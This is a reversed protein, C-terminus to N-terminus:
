NTLTNKNLQVPELFSKIVKITKKREDVQLLIKNLTQNFNFINNSIRWIRLLQASTLSYFTKFPRNDVKLPLNIIPNKNKHFPTVTFSNHTNKYINLDLYNIGLESINFTLNIQFASKLELLFNNLTHIDDNFLIHIDDRYRKYLTISNSYNRIVNKELHGLYINALCGSLPGGMPLGKVQLFHKNYATFTNNFILLNLTDLSFDKGSIPISYNKLIDYLKNLPINTFLNEVDATVLLLKKHNQNSLQIYKNNLFDVIELSNLCVTNFSSESYNSSLLAWWYSDTVNSSSSINISCSKTNYLHHSYQM